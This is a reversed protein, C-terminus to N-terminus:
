HNLGSQCICKWGKPNNSSKHCKHLDAMNVKHREWHVTAAFDDEVRPIWGKRQGYPPVTTQSIVVASGVLKSKQEDDRDWVQQVPAPLLSSLSAM